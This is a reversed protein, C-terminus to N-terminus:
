LEHLSVRAKLLSRQELANSSLAVGTIKDPNMSIELTAPRLYGNLYVDEFQKDLHESNLLIHCEKVQRGTFKPHQKLLQCIETTGCKPFGILFFYPLCSLSLSTQRTYILMGVCYEPLFESPLHLLTRNILETLEVMKPCSTSLDWDNQCLTKLDQDSGCPACAQIAALSSLQHACMCAQLQM